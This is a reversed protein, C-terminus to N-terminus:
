QEAVELRVAELLAQYDQACPPCGALHAAVDPMVVEPDGGAVLTEAYLHVLAFTEACGADQPDTALLKRLEDWASM